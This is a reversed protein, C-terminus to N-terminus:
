GIDTVQVMVSRSAGQRDVTLEVQHGIGAATLAEAFEGVTRVREGNVHTIVDGLRGSSRDMGRLGAQDAASGPVVEAEVVGAPLDFGAAVTQDLAAIGIGARPARGHGILQPVVENVVDIPVAFGVGAFSGTESFIATNIGILRGATDLLPGGSNGPNIAADTQIVGRIERGSVTPLYRDLASIIGVSMSRSLGFPNGIAYVAQGVALDHSSGLSIPAVRELPRLPRLVAVDYDPATGVLEARVTTGTGLRVGIVRAGDVVHNNTVIHGAADWVFGSGAGTAVVGRGFPDRDTSETVILAVAPSQASFAEVANHEDEALEGRPSVIRPETRAFLWSRVYPQAVWLTALVLAWLFLVRSIWAARM